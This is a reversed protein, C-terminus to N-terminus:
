VEDLSIKIVGLERQELVGAGNQYVTVLGEGILGANDGLTELDVIKSQKLGGCTVFSDLDTAIMDKLAPTNANAPLLNSVYVEMGMVTGQYGFDQEFASNTSYLKAVQTTTAIEPTVFVKRKGLPVNNTTFKTSIAGYFDRIITYEDITVGELNLLDGAEDRLTELRYSDVETSIAIASEEAVKMMLSPDTKWEELDTVATALYPFQDLTIETLVETTRGFTVNGTVDNYQGATLKAIGKYQVKNGTVNQKSYEAQEFIGTVIIENFKDTFFSNYITKDFM